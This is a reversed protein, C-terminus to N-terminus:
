PLAQAIPEDINTGPVEVWAVIAEPLAAWDIQRAGAENVAHEQPLDGAEPESATEQVATALLCAVAAALMMRRLLSRPRACRGGEDDASMCRRNRM